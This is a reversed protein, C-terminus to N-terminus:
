YSPLITIRFKKGVIYSDKNSILDDKNKVYYNTINM